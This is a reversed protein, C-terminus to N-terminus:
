YLGVAFNDAPTQIDYDQFKFFPGYVPHQDWHGQFQYSFGIKPDILNGKVTKGDKLKAILFEDKYFKIELIIGELKDNSLYTM